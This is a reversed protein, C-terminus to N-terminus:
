ADDGTDARVEKVANEVMEVPPNEVFFLEIPYKVWSPIM